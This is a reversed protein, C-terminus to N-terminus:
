AADGLSVIQTVEDEMATIRLYESRTMDGRPSLLRDAVLEATGDDTNVEFPARNDFYVVVRDQSVTQVLLIM